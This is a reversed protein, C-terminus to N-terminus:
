SIIEDKYKEKSLCIKDTIHKVLRIKRNWDEVTISLDKVTLHVDAYLPNERTTVEKIVCIVKSEKYKVSVFNYDFKYKNYHNYNINNAKILDNAREKVFMEFSVIDKLKESINNM